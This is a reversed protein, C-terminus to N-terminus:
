PRTERTLAAVTVVDSLDRTTERAGIPATGDASWVRWARGRRWSTAGAREATEFIRGPMAALVADVSGSALVVGEDLALVTTARSAEDVYATTAVVAREEESALAIMSWLELRSVPDLGTSPEDLVLLPPESLLAMAVGLKQRMGGSLNRGLRDAATGLGTIELLYSMRRGAPGPELGYASAVFELNEAVSLDAWVGSSEPQFGMRQPRHVVGSEIPTLGVLVRCLTSKGAGDGGVIVAIDGPSVSVSVDDLAVSEGFRVTVGDLGWSV